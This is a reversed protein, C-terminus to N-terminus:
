GKRGTMQMVRQRAEEFQQQTIKGSNLAEQIKQQAMQEMQNVNGNPAFGMMQAFQGFAQQFQNFGGFMQGFIPNNPDLM